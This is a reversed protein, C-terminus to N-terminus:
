RTTSETTTRAARKMGTSASRTTETQLAADEDAPSRAPSGAPQASGRRLLARFTARSDKGFANVCTRVPMGTSRAFIGLAVASMVSYTLTSSLAAGSAGLAPVLALALAAHGAVATGVIGVVLWFRGRGALDNQLVILVAAAVAGPLLIRLPTGAPAYASGMLLEIVAPGALALVAAGALSLALASRVAVATTAAGGAPDAGSREATRPFLMLGIATGGYTIVTAAGFAVAFQGVEDSGKLAQLVVVDLRLNTQALLAVLAQPLGIAAITRLAKTPVRPGGCSRWLLLAVWVAGLAWSVTWAVLAATLTPSVALFSCIFVVFLLEVAILARRFAAMHAIGRLASQGELYFSILPVSACSVIVQLDTLDHWSGPLLVAALVVGMVSGAALSIFAAGFLNERSIAGRARLFVAAGGAGLGAPVGVAFPLTRGLEFLGRGDPGLVRAAVIGGIVVLTTGIVIAVFTRVSDSALGPRTGTETRRPVLVAGLEYLFGGAVGIGYCIHTGALLALAVPVLRASPSLAVAAATLLGLYAGAAVLAVLPFFPALALITVVTLAPLGYPLQDLSPARVMVQGRGLGYKLMQRLHARLNPRHYHYFALEPRHAMAGGTRRLRSYFDVEEACRLDADLGQQLFVSRRVVANMLLNHETGPQSSDGLRYRHRVPGTALRSGLVRGVLREFESSKPPTLVPGGAAVISEDEMVEIASRLLGPPVEADDDLFLLLPARAYGAIRNRAEAPTTPELPVVKVPVEAPLLEALRRAQPVGSGTVGVILQIREVDDARALTRLLRALILSPARTIVVVSLAPEAPM